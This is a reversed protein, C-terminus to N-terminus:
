LGPERGTRSMLTSAAADMRDCAEFVGKRGREIDVTLVDIMAMKM